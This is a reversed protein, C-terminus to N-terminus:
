GVIISLIHGANTAGDNSQVSYGRLVNTSPDRYYISYITIAGASVKSIGSVIGHKGTTSDYFYGSAMFGARNPYAGTTPAINGVYPYNSLGGHMLNYLQIDTYSTPSFSTGPIATSKHGKASTDITAGITIGASPTFEDLYDTKMVGDSEINGVASLGGTISLSGGITQDGDVELDGRVAFDSMVQHDRDEITATSDANSKIWKSSQHDLYWVNQLVDSADMDCKAIVKEWQNAPSIRYHYAGYESVWKLDSDLITDDGYIDPQNPTAGNVSMTIYIVKETSNQFAALSVLNGSSATVARYPNSLYFFTSGEDIVFQSTSFKYIVGPLDYIALQSASVASLDVIDFTQVSNLKTRAM